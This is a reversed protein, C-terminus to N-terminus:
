RFVPNMLFYHFFPRENDESRKLLRLSLFPFQLDTDNICLQLCYWFHVREQRIPFPIIEGSRVQLYLKCWHLVHIMTKPRWWWPHPVNQLPSSLRNFLTGFFPLEIEIICSWYVDVCACHCRCLRSCKRDHSHCRLVIKTLFSSFSSCLRISWELHFCM